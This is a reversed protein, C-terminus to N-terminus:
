NTSKVTVHDIKSNKFMNNANSINSTDWNDNVYVVNLNSTGFFIENINTVESLDFSTLNLETLLSCYYFMSNMTKVKSTNFHSVDLTKLSKCFSFMSFMTKVKSTDFHSVDLTKLSSCYAFMCDMTTVNSTDFHSVDLEELSKCEYFMMEMDIVNSTDFHSVDLTKLSLCGSFMYDMDIVNSTNLNEINYINILKYCGNFLSEMRTTNITNINKFNVTELNELQNMMSFWESSYIKGESGVYFKYLNDDVPELWGMISGNKILSMDYAVANEPINIYDVFDISIISNSYNKLGDIEIIDHSTLFNTSLRNICKNKDTINKIFTYENSNYLKSACVKMDEYYIAYEVKGEENVHIIAEDPRQGKFAKDLDKSTSVGNTYIYSKENNKGKLLDIAIKRNIIDELNEINRKAVEIKADEVANTVVPIAVLAIIGIIVITALMEILTFGRKM